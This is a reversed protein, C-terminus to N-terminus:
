EKREQMLAREGAAAREAPHHDVIQRKWSWPEGLSRFAAATGATM